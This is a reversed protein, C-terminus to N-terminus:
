RGGGNGARALLNAFRCGEAHGHTKYNQCLPCYDDLYVGNLEPAWELEELLRMAERLLVKTAQLDRCTGNLGLHKGYSVGCAPCHNQSQKKVGWGWDGKEGAGRM